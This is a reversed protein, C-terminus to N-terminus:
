DRTPSVTGARNVTLKFVTQDGVTLERDHFAQLLAEASECDLPRINNVSNVTNM